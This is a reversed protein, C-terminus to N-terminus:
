RGRLQARNEVEMAARVADLASRINGKAAANMEAEAVLEGADRTSTSKFRQERAMGIEGQSDICRLDAPPRL